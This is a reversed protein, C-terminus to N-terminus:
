HICEGQCHLTARRRERHTAAPHRSACTPSHFAPEDTEDAKDNNVYGFLVYTLAFIAAIGVPGEIRYLAGKVRKARERRPGWPDRGYLAYLTCILAIIAKFGVAASGSDMANRRHHTRRSELHDPEEDHISEGRITEEDATNFMESSLLSMHPVIILLWRWLAIRKYGAVLYFPLGLLLWARFSPEGRWNVRLGRIQNRFDLLTRISKSRWRLPHEVDSVSTTEPADTTRPAEGM